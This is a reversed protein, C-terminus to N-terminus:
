VFERFYVRRKYKKKSEKSLIVGFGLWWCFVLFFLVGYFREWMRM